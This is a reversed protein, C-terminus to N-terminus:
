LMLVHPLRRGGPARVRQPRAARGAAPRDGRCAEADRLKFGPGAKRGEETFVASDLNFDSAGQSVWPFSWGMRNRYALM